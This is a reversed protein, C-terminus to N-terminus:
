QKRVLSESKVTMPSLSLFNPFSTQNIQLRLSLSLAIRALDKSLRIKRSSKEVLFVILISFLISRNNTAAILFMLLSLNGVFTEMAFELIFVISGLKSIELVSYLTNMFKTLSILLFPYMFYSERGDPKFRRM